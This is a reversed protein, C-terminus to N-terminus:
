DGRRVLIGDDNIESKRDIACEITYYLTELDESLYDDINEREIDCWEGEIARQILDDSIQETDFDISLINVGLINDIVHNDIDNWLWNINLYEDDSIKIYDDDNSVIYEENLFARPCQIDYWAINNMVVENFTQIYENDILYQKFEEYHLNKFGISTMYKKIENDAKNM